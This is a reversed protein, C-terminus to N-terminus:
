ITAVACPTVMLKVDLNKIKHNAEPNHSISMAMFFVDKM